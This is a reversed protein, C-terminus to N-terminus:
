LPPDITIPRNYQSFHVLRSIAAAEGEGLPGTLRIQRPLYDSTGLWVETRVPAAGRPPSTGTFGAIRAPDSTGRVLYAEGGALTVREPAQAAELARILGPVGRERDLPLFSVTSPPLAQWQRTFPDAFYHRDGITVLEMELTANGAQGLARVRVRDPQVIDGEVQTVPLGPGLIMQGGTIELRFRVSRVQEVATAARELLTAAPPPAQVRQFPVCAALPLVALLLARRRVM